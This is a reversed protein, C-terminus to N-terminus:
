RVNVVLTRGPLPGGAPETSRASLLVQKGRISVETWSITWSDGIREARGLLTSGAPIVLGANPYLDSTTRGRVDWQRLGSSQASKIAVPIATGSPITLPRGLSASVDRQFQHVPVAPGAIISGAGSAPVGRALSGMPLVLKEEQTRPDRYIRYAGQMMGVLLFKSSDAPSRELFLMYGTQAHFQVTGAVFVRVKGITGGPQQVVLLAPPSGKYTQDMALTTYTYIRTHQPNWLTQQSVVHGRIIETSAEAIQDLSMRVLTTASAPAAGIIVMLVAPLLCLSVARKARCLIAGQVEPGRLGPDSSPDWDEGTRCHQNGNTRTPWLGMAAPFSSALYQVHMKM